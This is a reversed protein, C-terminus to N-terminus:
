PGPAVLVAASGGRPGAGGHRDVRGRGAGPLAAGRAAGRGAPGLRRGGGDVARGREEVRKAESVGRRGNTRTDETHGYFPLRPEATLARSRAGSSDPGRHGERMTM